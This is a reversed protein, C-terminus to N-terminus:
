IENIIGKRFINKLMSHKRSKRIAEIKIHGWILGSDSFKEVKYIDHYWEKNNASYQYYEFKEEGLHIFIYHTDDWYTYIKDLELESYTMFKLSGEIGM